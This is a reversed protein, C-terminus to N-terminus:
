FGSNEGTLEIICFLNLPDWVNGRDSIIEGILLCRALLACVYVCPAGCGDVCEDHQQPARLPPPYFVVVCTPDRGLEARAGARMHTRTHAVHKIGTM